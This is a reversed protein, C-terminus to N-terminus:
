RKNFTHILNNLEHEDPYTILVARHKGHFVFISGAAASSAGGDTIVQRMDQLSGAGGCAIIPIGVSMSLKNVVQVDYGQMTGDRDISNLFIEGAGSQEARRAFDFLDDDTKLFGSNVYRELRGFLTKKIDIGVIISQNGFISAAQSILGLSGTAASNIAVKEVGIRFLREIQNLQSVGGGYCVPVFAESVIDEILEFNPGQEQRDSGIDLIILEDAAKDNFIRVANIPDGIYTLDRFKISKYLGRGKLLLVPIIRARLM